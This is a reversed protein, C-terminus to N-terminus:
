EPPPPPQSPWDFKLWDPPESMNPASPPWGQGSALPWQFVFPPKPPPPPPQEAPPPPPPYVPLNKTSHFCIFYHSDFYAYIRNCKQLWKFNIIFSNFLPCLLVLQYFKLKVPLNKTRYKNNMWIFIRQEHHRWWISVNEANSAMQKPSNMPRRHIGWGFALSATSYVVTLSTIQSAMMGM